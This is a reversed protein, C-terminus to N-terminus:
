VRRGVIFSMLPGPDAAVMKAVVDLAQAFEGFGLHEAAMSLRYIALRPLDSAARPRRWLLPNQAHLTSHCTRCLSITASSVARGALHHKHLKVARSDRRCKQCCHTM